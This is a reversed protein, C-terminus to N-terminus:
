YYYYTDAIQNAYKELLGLDSAIQLVTFRDRLEKAYLISTIFTARDIGLDSPSDPLGANKLFAACPALDPINEKILLQIAPWNEKYKEIRTKIAAANNTAAFFETEVIEKATQPNQYARMVKLSYDILSFAAAQEEYHAWDLPEELLKKYIDIIILTTFAVKIGHLVQPRNEALLHMEWFHAIHHEAGSAPRSNGAYAM